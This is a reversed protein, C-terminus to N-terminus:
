GEENAAAVAKNIAAIVGKRARKGRRKEAEAVSLLQPVTLLPIRPLLEEDREEVAAEADFNPDAAPIVRGGATGGGGVDGVLRWRIGAAGELAPLLRNDLTNEEGVRLHGILGNVSLPIPSADDASIVFIKTTEPAAM